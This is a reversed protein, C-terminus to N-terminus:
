YPDDGSSEFTMQSGNEQDFSTMNGSEISEISSSICRRKSLVIASLALLM